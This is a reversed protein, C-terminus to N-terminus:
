DVIRIKEIGQSRAQEILRELDDNTITAPVKLSWDKGSIELYGEHKQCAIKLLGAVLAGLATGAVGVLAVLVSPEIGRYRSTNRRFRLGFADRRSQSEDLAKKVDELNGSQATIQIKSTM